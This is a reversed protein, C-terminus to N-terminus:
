KGLKGNKENNKGNIQDLQNQSYTKLRLIKETIYIILINGRM